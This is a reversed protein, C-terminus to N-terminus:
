PASGAQPTATGSAERPGSAPAAPGAPADAFTHRASAAALLLGVATAAPPCDDGALSARVLGRLASEDRFGGVWPDDAVHQLLFRLFWRADTARQARRELPLHPEAIAIAAALQLCQADALAARASPLPVGGLLDEPLDASLDVTSGDAAEEAGGRAQLEHAAVACADLIAVLRARTDPPGAMPRAGADGRDAAVADDTGIGVLLALPLAADTFDGSRRDPALLRALIADLETRLGDADTALAAAAALALIPAGPDAAGDGDVPKALRTCAGRVLRAHPGGIPDGLRACAIAHMAAVADRRPGDEADDFRAGARLARSAERATSRIAEPLADTVAAEALAVAALAADLETAAPPDHVGATPNYTGLLFSGEAPRGRDIPLTNAVLRSALVSAALAATSPRIEAIAITRGGREVITPRGDPSDARLRVTRFRGLSVREDAPFAPLDKAPLGADLLLRAIIRDPRDATDSALLRAPFARTVKGARVVALGDTGPTARRAADAITRGLLPTVPGALEVELALRATVRDAAEARVARIVRDGLAESVARGVARRLMGRDATADEGVGVVRGDLRLVVCVAETAPLEVSADADDPRPLLDADLWARAALYADTAAAIAPASADDTGTGPLTARAVSVTAGIRCASADAPALGCLGVGLVM